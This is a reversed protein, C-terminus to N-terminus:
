LRIPTGFKSKNNSEPRVPTGFNSKNNSELITIERCWCANFESAGKRLDIQLFLEAHVESFIRGEFHTVCVRKFRHHSQRCDPEANSVHRRLHLASRCRRLLASRQLRRSHRKRGIAGSGLGGDRPVQLHLISEFAGRALRDNKRRSGISSPSGASVARCYYQCADKLPPGPRASVLRDAEWVALAGPRVQSCERVCGHRM